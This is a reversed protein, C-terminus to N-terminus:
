FGVWRWRWGGASALGLNPPFSLVGRSGAFAPGCAVCATRRGRSSPGKKILHSRLTLRREDSARWCHTRVHSRSGNPALCRPVVGNTAPRDITRSSEGACAVDESSCM